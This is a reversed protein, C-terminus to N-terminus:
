GRTPPLGRQRWTGLRRCSARHRGSELALSKQMLSRRGAFGLRWYFGRNEANAGGLYIQRAGFRMAEKEIREMLQRGIGQGRAEPTLAIVDVKVGSDARFALAGGVIEGDREVLLMLPRDVGFRSVRMAEGHSPAGRRVPFQAAIVREVRALEEISEVARITIM